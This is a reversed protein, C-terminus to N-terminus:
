YYYYHYYYHYYCYDYYYHAPAQTIAEVNVVHPVEVAREKSQSAPPRAMWAHSVIVILGYCCLCIYM